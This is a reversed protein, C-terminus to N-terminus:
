YLYKEVNALGRYKVIETSFNADIKWDNIDMFTSVINSLRMIEVYFHLKLIWM